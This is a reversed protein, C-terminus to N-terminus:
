PRVVPLSAAAKQGLLLESPLPSPATLSHKGHKLRHRIRQRNTRRAHDRQRQSQEHLSPIGDLRPLPKPGSSLAAPLAGAYMRTRQPSHARQRQSKKKMAKSPARGSNHGGGHKGGGQRKKESRNDAPSRASASGRSNPGGRTAEDQREM